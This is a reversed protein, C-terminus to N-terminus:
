LEALFEVFRVARDMEREWDKPLIPRLRQGLCVAEIELPSLGGRKALTALTQDHNREAQRERVALIRWPVSRPCEPYRRWERSAMLIPFQREEDASLARERNIARIEQVDEANTRVSM